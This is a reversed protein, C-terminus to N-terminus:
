GWRLLRASLVALAAAGASSTRLVQPGLRVAVAGAAALGALEDEAIGGEPGVIVLLEGPVGPGPLSQATLPRDASEHLVLAAAAGRVREALVATTVMASVPPLRAQRSQKVAARVTAEWRRRSREGRDGSWVVVSHRAQWPVIEDAGLETATEVASEDRGGKALAQVLVLQPTPAPVHVLELVRAGVRDRGCSEVRARALKGDGDALDIEEGPRVRRVAAAHRGEQGDLTLVAGPVTGDLAAPPLLFLPATM